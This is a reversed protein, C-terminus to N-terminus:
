SSRCLAHLRIEPQEIHHTMLACRLTTDNCGHSRMARMLLKAERAVRDARNCEQVRRHDSVFVRTSM